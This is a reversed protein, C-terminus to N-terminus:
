LSTWVPSRTSVVRAETLLSCVRESRASCSRLTTRSDPSLETVGVDDGSAESHHASPPTPPKSTRRSGDWRGSAKVVKSQAGQRETQGRRCHQGEPQPRRAAKGAGGGGRGGGDAGRGAACAGEPCCNRGPGPVPAPLRARPDCRERQPEGSHTTEGAALPRPSARSGRELRSAGAALCPLQRSPHLAAASCGQTPCVLEPFPQATIASPPRPSFEDKDRTFTLTVHGRPLASPAWVLLSVHSQIPGHPGKQDKFEHASDPDHTSPRSWPVVLRLFSVQERQQAPQRDTRQQAPQRDGARLATGGM